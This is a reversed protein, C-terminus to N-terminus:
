GSARPIPIIGYGMGIRGGQLLFRKCARQLSTGEPYNSPNKQTQGFVREEAQREKYDADYVTFLSQFQLIGSGPALLAPLERALLWSHCHFAAFGEQGLARFFPLASQLSAALDERRLAEGAPVHVALIPAGPALNCRETRVPRELAKPQYELRGVRFIEMRLLHGIWGWEILGPQGTRRQCEASWLAFDHFTDYFIQEPIGKARYQELSLLAWRLFLALVLLEADPLTRMRAEFAAADRLFLIHMERAFSDPIRVTDLASLTREPLRLRRALETPTM